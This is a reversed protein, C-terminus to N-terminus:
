SSARGATYPYKTRRHASRAVASSRVDSVNRAAISAARFCTRRRRDRHRPQDPHRSVLQGVVVSPAVVPEAHRHGLQGFRDLGRVVPIGFEVADDGLAHQGPQGFLVAGHQRQAVQVVARHGFTGLQDAPRHVGGFGQQHPGPARELDCYGPGSPPVGHVVSWSGSVTSRPASRGTCGSGANAARSRARRSDATFKKSAWGFRVSPTTMLPVSVAMASSFSVLAGATAGM